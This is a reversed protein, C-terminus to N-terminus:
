DHLRQERVRLVGKRRRREHGSRDRDADRRHEEDSLRGWYLGVLRQNLNNSSSLKVYGCLIGSLTLSNPMVSCCRVDTTAKLLVIAHSEVNPKKRSGAQM